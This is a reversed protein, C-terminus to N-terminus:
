FKIDEQKANYHLHYHILLKHVFLNKLIMNFKISDFNGYLLFSNLLNKSNSISGDKKIIKILGINLKKIEIQSIDKSFSYYTNSTKSLLGKLM